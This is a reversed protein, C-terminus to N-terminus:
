DTFLTRQATKGKPSVIGLVDQEIQEFITFLSTLRDNSKGPLTNEGNFRDEYLITGTSGRLFVLDLNLTFGERDVFRTRRVRQGTVQSIEDMTVYGSRDSVAFSVKGTIVLDAEHPEALKRWYGSNALLDAFPQEPLPPPEVDLIQLDTKRRLERRLLSVTEKNLDIEPLDKDVVMRTVLVRHLGTMDIRSPMPVAITVRLTKAGAPAAVALSAFALAAACARRARSRRRGTVISVAGRRLRPM